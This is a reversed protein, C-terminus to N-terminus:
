ACEEVIRDVQLVGDTFRGRIILCQDSNWATIIRQRDGSSGALPPLTQHSWILDAPVVRPSDAAAIGRWPCPMQVCFINTKGVRLAESSLATDAAQSTTVALCTAVMLTSLLRM